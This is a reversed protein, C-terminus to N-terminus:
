LYINNGNVYNKPKADKNPQYKSKMKLEYVFKYEFGCLTRYLSIQELTTEMLEHLTYATSNFEKSSVTITLEMCM